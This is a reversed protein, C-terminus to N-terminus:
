LMIAALDNFPCSKYKTGDRNVISRVEHELRFLTGKSRNEPDIINLCRFMCQDVAEELNYAKRKFRNNVFVGGLEEAKRYCATLDKVYMSIHPGSNALVEDADSKEVESHDVKRNDMVQSFSLTQFPSVVIKIEHDKSQPLSPADFVFRYFRAIGSLSTGQPVNFTLDQIIAPLSPVGPQGGRPDEANEDVVLRFTSGWPDTVFLEDSRSEIWQFKSSKLISEQALM